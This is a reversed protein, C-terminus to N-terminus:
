RVTFVGSRGTNLNTIRVQTASLPYVKIPTTKSGFFSSYYLTVKIAGDNDLCMRATNDYDGDAIEDDGRVRARVSLGQGNLLMFANGGDGEIWRGVPNPINLIEQIMTRATSTMNTYREGCRPFNHQAVAPAPAPAPAPVRAQPTKPAPVRAPAPTDDTEFVMGSSQAWSPTTIVFLLVCLLRTM